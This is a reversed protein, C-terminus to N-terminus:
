NGVEIASSDFSSNESTAKGSESICTNQFFNSVFMVIEVLYLVGELEKDYLHSSGM